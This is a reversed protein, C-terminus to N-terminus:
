STLNEGSVLAGCWHGVQRRSVVGVIPNEDSVRRRRTKEDPRRGRSRLVSHFSWGVVSIELSRIKM